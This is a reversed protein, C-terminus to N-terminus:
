MRGPRLHRRLFRLAALILYFAITLYPVPEYGFGPGFACFLVAGAFAGFLWGLERTLITDIKSQDM